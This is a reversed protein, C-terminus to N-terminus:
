TSEPDPVKERMTVFEEAATPHIGITADFQAKTAGCKLAIALGQTIEGADPGVMHCGVVRDSAREVILKMLTTEDRGTLTHKMPRFSSRYVDIEGCRERAEAETLGVCGIPPQSFVATPVGSHDPRTPTGAFVTNAFAIGEAFAVPTLMLRDTCDGIAYIHPVSSCSHDDVIVAGSQGLEVGVEELGLDRTKPVRGTAYLVQDAELTSGDDMRLRLGAGDREIATPNKEFRLDIGRKRMEDALVRRVDDDFGRMFLPGRYLQIVEAGMGHFIGAFEVAIYGGGGVVVREPFRELHFAHDSTIAHEIGPIRPLSPESGVAVLIHAATHRAEGVAVTHPGRLTARGEIREVGSEDLLRAYVGNLRQIEGDKNELLTKWDFRRSPGLSWGYALADEFDERYHSAYVFLKKPVCGANVCTGGLYTDEAVAVRAGLSAAVRSARVGGSGAGITFLDFDYRSM